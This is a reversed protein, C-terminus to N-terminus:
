THDKCKECRVWTPPPVVDEFRRTRSRPQMGRNGSYRVRREISHGCELTLQWVYGIHNYPPFISVVASALYSTIVSQRAKM